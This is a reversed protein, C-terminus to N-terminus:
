SKNKLGSPSTSRVTLIKFPFLTFHFHNPDNWHFHFHKPDNASSSDMYLDSVESEVKKTRNKYSGSKSTLTITIKDTRRDNHTLVMTNIKKVIDNKVACFFLLICGSLVPSPLSNVQMIELCGNPEYYLWIPRLMLPFISCTAFLFGLLFFYLLWESLSHWVSDFM